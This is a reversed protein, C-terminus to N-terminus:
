GGFKYLRMVNDRLMKWKAAEPVGAFERAIVEQSHPWTSDIHPYDNSWMVNDEGIIKYTTVGAHDSMFTFYVQEKLIESPKRGSKIRIDRYVAQRAYVHDLRQYYNGVWGIDNEVSVLKLKPFRDFVGALVLTSLSRQVWVPWSAYEVMIDDSPSRESDTGIHLSVPMELEQAARWLPDYTASHFPRDSGPTQSIMAGVHGLSRAEHLDEVAHEIDAVSLMAIAKLHDPHAHCFDALWRNYARFLARQFPADKVRFMRMGMSTYLVEADVGDVEMDKVRAHPDWGGRRNREDDWRTMGKLRESPTGAPGHFGMNRPSTGECYFVDGKEERKMYPARAKFAPELYQQWLDPPESVHSDASIIRYTTM